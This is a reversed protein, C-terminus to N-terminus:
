ELTNDSTNASDVQLNSISRHAEKLIVVEEVNQLGIFIFGEGHQDGDNYIKGVVVPMLLIMIYGWENLLM